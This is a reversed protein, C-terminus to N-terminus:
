LDQEVAVLMTPRHALLPHCIVLAAMEVKSTQVTRDSLVLVAVVAVAMLQRATQHM